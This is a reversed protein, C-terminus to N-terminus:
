IISLLIHSDFTDISTNPNVDIGNDTIQTRMGIDESSPDLSLIQFARAAAIKRRRIL